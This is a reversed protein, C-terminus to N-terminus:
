AILSDVEQDEAEAEETTLTLPVDNPNFPDTVYENWWVAIDGISTLLERSGSYVTPPASSWGGLTCPTKGSNRQSWFFIGGRVGGLGM